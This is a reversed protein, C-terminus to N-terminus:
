PKGQVNPYPLTEKELEVRPIVSIDYTYESPNEAEDPDHPAYWGQFVLRITGIKNAKFFFTNGARNTLVLLRNRALERKCSESLQWRGPALLIQFRQGKTKVLKVSGDDECFAAHSGVNM